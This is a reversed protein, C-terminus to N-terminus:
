APSKGEGGRVDSRKKSYSAAVCYCHGGTGRAYRSRNRILKRIRNKSSAAIRHNALVTTNRVKKVLTTSSAQKRPMLTPSSEARLPRLKTGAASGKDISAHPAAM